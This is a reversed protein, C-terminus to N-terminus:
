TLTGSPDAGGVGGDFMARAEHITVRVEDSKHEEEGRAAELRDALDLDAGLVLVACRTLETELVAASGFFDDILEVHCAVDIDGVSSLVYGGALVHHRRHVHGGVHPGIHQHIHWCIHRRILRRIHVDRWPEARLVVILIAKACPWITRLGPSITIIPVPQHIRPRRLPAVPSVIVAVPLLVRPRTVALRALLLRAARILARTDWALAGAL